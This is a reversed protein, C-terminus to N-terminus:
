SFWDMWCIKPESIILTIGFKEQSIEGVVVRSLVSTNLDKSPYPKCASTTYHQSQM